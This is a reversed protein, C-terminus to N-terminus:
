AAGAASTLRGAAGDGAGRELEGVPCAGARLRALIRVRSATSLAGMLRAVERATTQSLPSRVGSHNTEGMCAHKCVCLYMDVPRELPGFTPAIRRM